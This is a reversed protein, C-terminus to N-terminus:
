RGGTPEAKRSAILAAVQRAIVVDERAPVVLVAVPERVLIADGAAESDAPPGGLVGPVGLVGLRRCIASRIAASHEGIGGTFVLADLRPLATAAAAIAAAARRCFMALAMFAADDGGAQRSELERASATSGSVGLLGSRHELGDALESAPMGHRLLHLLIGPDVSGSRTGMMLGELPTFGMSTDASRGGAVATVSSGAGLHAVVVNLEDAAGALLEASRQAAWEVSLGHFGFRRLGWRASWDAPLPYRWAEEPLDAHFATDFCAIHPLGPMRERAARIVDVARQNHLPAIDDLRELEELVEESAVVPTRLREGGHVVRYGVADLDGTPLAETAAALARLAGKPGEDGSPWSAEGSVLGRGTASEVVSAKLSSSGANLVLIRM